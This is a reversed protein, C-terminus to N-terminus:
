RVDHADGVVHLEQAVDHAARRERAGVQVGRQNRALLRHQEVLLRQAQRECPALTRRKWNTNPPSVAFASSVYRCSPARLRVTPLTDPANANAAAGLPMSM